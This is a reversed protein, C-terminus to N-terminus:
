HEKLAETATAGTPEAADSASPQYTLSQTKPGFLRDLFLWERLDFWLTEERDEESTAFLWRLLCVAAFALAVFTILALVILM